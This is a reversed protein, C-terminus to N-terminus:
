LLTLSQQFNEMSMRYLKKIVRIVSNLDNMDAIEPWSVRVIALTRNFTSFAKFLTFSKLINDLVHGLRIFLFIRSSVKIMAHANHLKCGGSILHCKNICAFETHLHVHIIHWVNM